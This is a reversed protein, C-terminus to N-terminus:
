KGLWIVGADDNRIRDADESMLKSPYLLVRLKAVDTKTRVCRQVAKILDVVYRSWERKKRIRGISAAAIDQDNAALMEQTLKLGNGRANVPEVFIEEAGCEVALDVLEEIQAADAGIGPLLPCFMAYTRLGISQALRLAAIRENISSANPEIVSVATDSAPPATISLGVLVRDRYQDILDYDNTIAANKTLIRM